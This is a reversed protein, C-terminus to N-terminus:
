QDNTNTYSSKLDKIDTGGMFVYADLVNRIALKQETTITRKKYDTKGVYLAVADSSNAIAQITKLKEPTDIPIDLLEHKYKKKGKTESKIVPGSLTYDLQDVTIMYNEINLWQTDIYRVKLRLELIGARNKTYYTYFCEKTDFEPSSKDIYHTANDKKFQRMHKVANPMRKKREAEAIAFEKEQIEALKSDFKNKLSNLDMSDILEPHNEILATLKEKGVKYQELDFHATIHKFLSEPAINSYDVTTTEVKRVSNDKISPKSNTNCGVFTLASIIIYIQYTIINKM